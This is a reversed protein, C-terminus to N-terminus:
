IKRNKNEQAIILAATPNPKAELGLANFVSSVLNIFDGTPKHGNSDDPTIITPKKGTLFHFDYYLTNAVSRAHWDPEPGKIPKESLYSVDARRAVDQVMQLLEDLKHLDNDLQMVTEDLKHPDNTDFGCLEMAFRTHTNLSNLCEALAAAKEALDDLEARATKQNIIGLSPKAKASPAYSAAYQVLSHLLCKKAPLIPLKLYAAEILQTKERMAAQTKIATLVQCLAEILQTKENM